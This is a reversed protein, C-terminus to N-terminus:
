DSSSDKLLSIVDAATNVVAAAKAAIEPAPMKLDPICVVPIGANAAALIGNESDELVLACGPAVHFHACAHLFIDPEPKSRKIEDGGVIFSFYEDLGSRALYQGVYERPTSSAVCCPVGRKRLWKLLPEIGPKIKLGHNEIEAAMLQRTKKSIEEAPYDPGYIETLLDALQKGATGISRIYDEERHTYGYEQMVGAKLNMFLRETDFILGDMDFVALQPLRM